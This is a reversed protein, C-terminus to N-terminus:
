ELKPCLKNKSLTSDKPMNALKSQTVQSFLSWMLLVQSVVSLKTSQTAQLVSLNAEKEKSRKTQSLDQFSSQVLNIMLKQLM